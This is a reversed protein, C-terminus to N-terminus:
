WLLAFMAMLISRIDGYKSLCNICASLQIFSIVKMLVGFLFHSKWKRYTAYNPYTDFVIVKVHM